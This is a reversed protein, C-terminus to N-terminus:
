WNHLFLFSEMLHSKQSKMHMYIFMNKKDFIWSQIELFDEQCKFVIEMQIFRFSFVVLGKLVQVYVKWYKSMFMFVWFVQIWVHTQAWKEGFVFKPVRPTQSWSLCDRLAPQFEMWPHCQAGISVEEVSKNNSFRCQSACLLSFARM